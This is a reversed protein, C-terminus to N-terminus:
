ETGNLNWLMFIDIHVLEHADANCAANGSSARKQLVLQVIM